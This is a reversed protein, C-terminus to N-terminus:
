KFLLIRVKKIESGENEDAGRIHAIAFVFGRDIL